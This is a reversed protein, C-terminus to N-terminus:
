AVVTGGDTKCQEASASSVWGQGKCTNKGACSHGKGGCEGQGACKNIGSCHVDAYAAQTAAMGAVTLLGAVSAALFKKKSFTKEM